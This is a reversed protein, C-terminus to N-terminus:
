NLLCSIPLGNNIILCESFKRLRLYSGVKEHLAMDSFQRGIRIQKRIEAYTNEAILIRTSFDNNAAEVGSAPNIEDRIAAVRAVSAGMGGPPAIGYHIGIGINFGTARM